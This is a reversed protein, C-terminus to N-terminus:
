NTLSQLKLIEKTKKDIKRKLEVPNLSLYLAELEKKKEESIKPHDMLRQYPTKAIDYKKKCVSNNIKEKSVIKMVPKFLNNFLRLEQRYLNNIAMLQEIKDFRGYGLLHGFIPIIRKNWM